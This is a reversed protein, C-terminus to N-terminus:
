RGLERAAPLAAGERHVTVLTRLQDFTMDLLDAPVHRLEALADASRLEVPQTTSVASERTIQPDTPSIAMANRTSFIELYGVSCRSVRFEDLSCKLSHGKTVDRSWNSPEMPARLM